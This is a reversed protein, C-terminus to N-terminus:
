QGAVGGALGRAGAHGAAGQAIETVANLPNLAEQLQKKRMEEAALDLGQLRYVLELNKETQAMLGACDADTLAHEICLQRSKARVAEPDLKEEEDNADYLSDMAMGGLNSGYQFVGLALDNPSCAARLSLALLAPAPLPTSRPM